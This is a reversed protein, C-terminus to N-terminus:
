SRWGSACVKTTRHAHLGWDLVAEHSWETPTALEQGMFLLKKGPQEGSCGTSCACTRSSGGATVPCRRCSRARQRPGGRRPVAAPHLERQLRLRQPLHDRRPPVQPLRHRQVYQLTDHMWGMDWKFGFGLGGVYTPRSVMPWSTSEEAFTAVDPHEAYVM